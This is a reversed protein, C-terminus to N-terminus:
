VVTNQVTYVYYEIIYPSLIDLSDIVQAFYKINDLAKCHCKAPMSIINEISM